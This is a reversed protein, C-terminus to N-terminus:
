ASGAGARRRRASLQERHARASRDDLRRRDGRAHARSVGPAEGTNHDGASDIVHPASRPHGCRRLGLRSSIASGIEARIGSRSSRSSDSSQSGGSPHLPSASPTRTASSASRERACREAPEVTELWRVPVFYECMEPDDVAERMYAGGLALDLVPRNIGDVNVMFDRAAQKTGTVVGVGVYGSRPVDVWVRDSPQLLGLTNSYWAGGGGSIPGFKIAGGGARKITGTRSTFEGNWPERPGPTQECIEVQTHVPDLLWARSLFQDDGHSFVLCMVNIPVDRANLYAVIRESSDDLASAVIVIPRRNLADEELDEGFRLRFDESLNRGHTRRLSRTSGNQSSTGVWGAYDLARAVVERAHPGTQARHARTCRGSRDRPSRDRAVDLRRGGTTRDDDMRRFPHEAFHRNDGRAPEGDRLM